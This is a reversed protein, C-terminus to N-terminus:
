PKSEAQLRMRNLKEVWAYYRDVAQRYDAWDADSLEVIVPPKLLEAAAPSAAYRLEDPDDTVFLHPYDEGISLVVRVTTM